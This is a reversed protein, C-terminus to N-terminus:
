DGLPGKPSRQMKLDTIQPLAAQFKINLPDTEYFLTNFPLINKLEPPEEESFIKRYHADLQMAANYLKKSEAPEIQEEANAMQEQWKAMLGQDTKLFDSHRQIAGGLDQSSLFSLQAVVANAILLKQFVIEEDNNRPLSLLDKAGNNSSNRFITYPLSIFIVQEILYPDKPLIDTGYLGIRVGENFAKDEGVLDLVCSVFTYYAHVRQRRSKPRNFYSTLMERPFDQTQPSDAYARVFEALQESTIGEWQEQILTKSEGKVLEYFSEQREWVFAAASIDQPNQVMKGATERVLNKAKRKQGITQKPLSNYEALVNEAWNATRLDSAMATLMEEAWIGGRINVNVEPTAM